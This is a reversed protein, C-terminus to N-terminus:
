GKEKRGPRFMEVYAVGMGAVVWYLVPILTISSVTYITILISVLVGLITVGLLYYEEERSKFRRLIKYIGVLVSVFIALFLVLGVLGYELLIALYSNVIDIIGQGQKMSQMEPTELYSASGFYPNRQFVILSNDLLRQRYDVNYADVKGVFPLLNVVREGIPLVMVLVIAVVASAALKAVGTIPQRGMAAYVMLFVVMGVWPGRSIAAFLGATLLAPVLQRSVANNIRGRLFFYFGLAIMMVYGLVIPQGTTGLARLSEGRLLMRSMTLDADLATSLSPYLLWTKLYEFIAVAALLM